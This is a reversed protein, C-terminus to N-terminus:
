PCILPVSPFYTRYRGVDRTIIPVGAAEAHAGIFFDALPSTKSGGRQRYNKYAQAALLLAAKPLERYGLKLTNLLSEVELVSPKVYCLESFILPNVFASEYESLTEVSWLRWTSDGGVIDIIVNSDVLAPQKIM